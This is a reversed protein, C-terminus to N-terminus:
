EDRKFFVDMLASTVNGEKSERSERRFNNRIKALAIGLAVEFGVLDIMRRCNDETYGEPGEILEAAEHLKQIQEDSFKRPATNDQTSTM